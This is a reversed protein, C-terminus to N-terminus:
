QQSERNLNNEHMQTWKPCYPTLTGDPLTHLYFTCVSGEAQQREKRVLEQKCCKCITRAITATM